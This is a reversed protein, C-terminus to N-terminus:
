HKVLEVANWGQATAHEIAQRAHFDLVHTYPQSREKGPASSLVRQDLESFTLGKLQAQAAQQIKFMNDGVRVWTTLMLLIGQCVCTTVISVTGDRVCVTLMLMM